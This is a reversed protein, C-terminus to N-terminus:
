LGAICEVDGVLPPAAVLKEKKAGHPLIQFHPKGGSCLIIHLQDMQGLGPKLELVWLM